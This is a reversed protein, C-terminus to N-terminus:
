CCVWEAPLTTFNTWVEENSMPACSRHYARPSEFDDGPMSGLMDGRITMANGTPFRPPCYKSATAIEQIASQLDYAVAAPFMDKNQSPICMLFDSTMRNYVQVLDSSRFIFFKDLTIEQHSDAYARRTHRVPMHHTGHDYTDPVALLDEIPKAFTINHPQPRDITRGDTRALETIHIEQEDFLQHALLLRLTSDEREVKITFPMMEPILHLQFFHAVVKFGPVLPLDSTSVGFKAALDDPLLVHIKQYQSEPFLGGGYRQDSLHTWIIIPGITQEQIIWVMDGEAVLVAPFKLEFTYRDLFYLHRVPDPQRYRREPNFPVYSIRQVLLTDEFVDIHCGGFKWPLPPVHFITPSWRLVTDSRAWRREQRVLTNSLAGWDTVRNKSGTIVSRKKVPCTNDYEVFFPKCLQFNRIVERWQRSVNYGAVVDRPDLYSLIELLIDDPLVLPTTTTM